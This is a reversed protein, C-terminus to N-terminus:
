IGGGEEEDEPTAFDVRELPFDRNTLSLADKLATNPTFRVRLASILSTEYAEPTESGLGNAMVRFSGIDGLHVRKGEKLAYIIQEQLASLVALCDHRTVTCTASIRTALEDIGINSMNVILGYYKGQGEPNRPDKREIVKYIMEKRKKFPKNNQKKTRKDEPHRHLPVGRRFSPQRKTGNQAPKGGKGGNRAPRHLNGNEGTRAKM